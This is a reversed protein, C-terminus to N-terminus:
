ESGYAVFAAWYRPAAFRAKGDPGKWDRLAVAAERLADAPTLPNEKRLIREYLGEMLRRTGEDEVRWLSAVVRRAGAMQFASVLGQVGEGSEATGKATECASLTVLDVGDLDLYSAELATLIGDDGAAGERPNAGAMALGSLLMPDHGVSLQREMDASTFAEEIRRTYLSSLLDERAFGHTAIHVFRRGKVGDRLRAETADAGLLLRTTDAGFRDHLGEVEVKTQPIPVFTGGRPARDLSAVTSPGAPLPREETGVDAHAYDVGGVLLAGTGAPVADKWPVLDQANMVHSISLDDILWRGAAKGPLAAFPVAALAADPSIVVHTVGDDLSAAIPNWVLARLATGAAIRKAASGVDAQEHVISDVFAGCAAEIAEAVGVDVRIPEGTARVVWAFYRDGVRLCDVLATDAGIQAQVDSLTLDLRELAIRLPAIKGALELTLREREVAAEAYAKQWAARVEPRFSSPVNNALRAAHRQAARLPEQTRREDVSARRSLIREATEARAVLGRFRLVEPYGSVGFHPAFHVWSGLYARYSRLLGLRQRASLASLQARVQAETMALSREYLPRADGYADQHCHLLALNHLLRAVQPDDRGHTRERVSLAREYLPRAEAYAGLHDLLLAFNNLTTALDPHDVGRAKEQITLSREYLPRAEVHSGLYDLLLALNNLTTAVDPHDPGLAEERIALAREYLARAKRLAGQDKLLSALNDLSGAVLPHDRGLAKERVALAREYLPQAEAHAGLGHLLHALYDLSKAVDPHNEGLATERIALAREFLPRAEGPAGLLFLLHGLNGLSNAVLPHDRGLVNERIALAREHFQHAKEYAGLELLLLALNDLSTAVLPHNEGLAAEQIALAREQLPRAIAYAGLERHLMALNSLNAAVLPHNKGLANENLALAREFLTRAEGYAGQDLLVAALNNLIAALSADDKGLAKEKIALAREFLRQAERCAGLAHILTGLNNLSLAVDLHDEGLAKEKIAIAREFLLRAEAYAAEECLLSALNNLTSAVDLHDVGLAKERIALAREYLPRAERYAGQDQLVSALNDLATAIDPHDEGLAKECIALAERALPTAEASEGAEQLETVRAKLAKARAVAAAQEPTLAPASAPQTDEARAPFPSHAGLALSLAAATLLPVFRPM